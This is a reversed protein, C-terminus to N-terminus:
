EMDWAKKANRVAYYELKTAYPLVDDLLIALILRRDIHGSPDRPCGEISQSFTRGLSIIIEKNSILNHMIKNLQKRSHNQHKLCRQSRATLPRYYDRTHEMGKWGQRSPKNVM